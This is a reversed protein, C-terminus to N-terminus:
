IFAPAYLSLCPLSFSLSHPLMCLTAFMASLSTLPTVSIELTSSSFLFPVHPTLSAHTSDCLSSPGIVRSCRSLHSLGFFWNSFLQMSVSLVPATFFRSLHSLRLSLRCFLQMAVSLVPAFFRRSSTGYICRSRPLPSACPYIALPRLSSCFHATGLSCYSRCACRWAM